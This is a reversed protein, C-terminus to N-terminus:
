RKRLKEIKERQNDVADESFKYLMKMKRKAADVPRNPDDAAPLPAAKRPRPPNGTGIPLLMPSYDQKFRLDLYAMLFAFVLLALSLFLLTKALGYSSQYYPTTIVVFGSMLAVGLAIRYLRREMMRKWCLRLLRNNM